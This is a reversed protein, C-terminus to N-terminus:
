LNKTRLSSTCVAQDGVPITKCIASLATNSYLASLTDITRRYCHTRANSIPFLSCYTLMQLYEGGPKGGSSLANAVGDIVAEREKEEPFAVTEEYLQALTKDQLNHRVTDDFYAMLSWYKADGPLHAILSLAETDSYNAYHTYGIALENYCSQQYEAKQTRCLATPDSVSYSLSYNKSGEANSLSNFVGSVCRVRWQPEDTVAECEITAEATMAKDNGWITAPLSDLLAHGIGHFCAAAASHGAARSPLAPDILLGICYSNAEHLYDRGLEVLMQEMFGHYFGYGCYSTEQRAIHTGTKKYESYTASGLVHMVDHCQNQFELSTEYYDHVSDFGASLGEQKITATIETAWCYGKTTDQSSSLCNKVSEDKEGEVLVSGRMEALLRDHFNWVGAQEFTFSWQENPTLARGPDFALSIGQSSHPDSLPWFPAGTTSVFRVTDGRHILVTKPIFGAATRTVVVTHHKHTTYFAIGAACLFLAIAGLMSKRRTQM